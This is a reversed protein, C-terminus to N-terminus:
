KILYLFSDVINQMKFVLVPQDESEQISTLAVLKASL